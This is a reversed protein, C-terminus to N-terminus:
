ESGGVSRGPSMFQFKSAEFVSGTTSVYGTQPEVALYGGDEACSRIHFFTPEDDDTAEVVFSEAPGPV